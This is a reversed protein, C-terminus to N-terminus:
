APTHKGMQHIQNTTSGGMGFISHYMMSESSCQQFHFGGLLWTSGHQAMNAQLAQPLKVVQWANPSIEVDAQDKPLVFEACQGLGSSHVHLSALLRAWSNIFVKRPFHWIPFYLFIYSFASSFWALIMPSSHGGPRLHRLRQWRRWAGWILVGLCVDSAEHFFSEFLILLVCNILVHWRLSMNIDYWMSDSWM